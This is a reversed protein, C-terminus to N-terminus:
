EADFSVIHGRNPDVQGAVMEGYLAAVASAGRTHHITLWRASDEIFLQLAEAIHQNLVERGWEKGRKAIQSPAFFFEPQPPTIAVSGRNADWHTAGVSSSHMVNGSMHLHLAAIVSQSGAMDVVVSPVDTSLSAIDDYTVVQDYEGVGAAFALNKASTLGVVQLSSTRQLCHALAIATKSSASTIVIRKAGFHNSQQLFDNLLYSTTFLGRFILMADDHTGPEALELSRYTMAHKERWPAVDVFGNRSPQADVVHHDALPFFGFYRTGVRVDACTSATVMGFGMVPLRGWGDTTPFFGWYDLIDGSLAYTVNNSTLAASELRLLVQNPALDTPPPSAVLQSRRIDRRDIELHV